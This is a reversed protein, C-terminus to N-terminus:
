LKLFGANDKLIEAYDFISGISYVVLTDYDNIYIDDSTMIIVIATFGKIFGYYNLDFGKINKTGSYKLNFGENTLEDIYDAEIVPKGQNSGYIKYKVNKFTPIAGVPLSYKEVTEEINIEAVIGIPEKIELFSKVPIYGANFSSSIVIGIIVFCLILYFTKKPNFFPNEVEPKNKIVKNSPNKIVKCGQPPHICVDPNLYNEKNNQERKLYIIEVDAM